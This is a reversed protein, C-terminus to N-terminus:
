KHIGKRYSRLEDWLLLKEGKNTYFQGKEEFVKYKLPVGIYTCVCFLDWLDKEKKTDIRDVSDVFKEFSATMEKFWEAV